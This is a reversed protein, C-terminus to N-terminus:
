CGEKRKKRPGENPLAAPLKLKPLSKISPQSQDTSAGTQPAGGFFKSVEKVKEFSAVQGPTADVPLKPFLIKDKWENLGGKLVYVAKFNRAKMLFWGLAAKENSDSYLIIKDTPYFNQDLLQPLQINQAMPIHYEAFEEPNRTDIIRYDFNGKIIWDAVSQVSVNDADKQAILALDKINLTVKSTDYPSGAFIAFFGLILAIFGLKKQISINLFKNKMM